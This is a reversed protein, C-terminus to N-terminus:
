LLITLLRREVFVIAEWGDLLSGRSGSEVFCVARGPM